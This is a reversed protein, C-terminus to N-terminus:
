LLELYRILHWFEEESHEVERAALLARLAEEISSWRGDHGYPPSSSLGRLSPPYMRMGTEVDFRMRRAFIPPPHCLECKFRKFLQFGRQSSLSAPEIPTGDQAVRGREFPPISQLYAELAALDSASLQVGLMEVELMRQIAGQLTPVSGDWLYPPTQWLGRLPQVDRAGPSGPTTEDAGNYVRGNTGGGPHCTACSRSGDGSLAPSLYLLAGRQVLDPSPSPPELPPGGHLQCAGLLFLLAATRDRLWSAVKSNPRRDAVM